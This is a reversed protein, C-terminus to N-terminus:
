AQPEAPWCSRASQEKMKSITVEQLCKSSYNPLWKDISPSDRHKNIKGPAFYHIRKQFVATQPYIQTQFVRFTM